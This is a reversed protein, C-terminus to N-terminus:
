EAKGETIQLIEGARVTLVPFLICGLTETVHECDERPFEGIEERLMSVDGCAGDRLTGIERLM